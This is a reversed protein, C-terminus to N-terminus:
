LALILMLVFSAAASVASWFPRSSDAQTKADSLALKVIQGKFPTGKEPSLDYARWLRDVETPIRILSREKLLKLDQSRLIRVVAIAGERTKVVGEGVVKLAGGQAFLPQEDVRELEVWQVLDGSSIKALPGIDLKALQLNNEEYVPAGVLPDVIQFGQYPINALFDMALKKTAAELAKPNHDGSPIQLEREWLVLGDIGNYAMWKLSRGKLRITVIAHADLLQGLLIAEQTKLQERSSFVGKEAMLKQSALLFRRNATLATRAAQWALHAADTLPKPVGIPFVALRRLPGNPLKRPDTAFSQPDDYEMSDAPIPQGVPPITTELYNEEQTLEAALNKAVKFSSSQAQVALLVLLLGTASTPTSVNSIRHALRQSFELWCNTFM